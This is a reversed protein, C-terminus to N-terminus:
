QAPAEVAAPVRALIKEGARLGAHVLFEDGLDAGLRVLRRQIHGRTDVAYVFTLQRVYEVAEAPVVVSAPGQTDAAVLIRAEAYLGPITGAPLPASVKALVSRSAPDVGRVSTRITGTVTKGLAPLWLELESGAALQPTLSAPVNVAVELRDPNYLLLIPREPSALDGPDALTDIVVGDIPSELRTFDLRAAAGDRAARAATVAHASAQRAREADIRETQPISRAEAAERISVLLREAGRAEAKARALAADAQDREAQPVRADLLALTDGAAVRAGATVAIQQIRGAIEPALEIRDRAIVAGVLRRERAGTWGTVTVTSQETAAPVPEQMQGARIKPAFVDAQWALVLVVLALALLYRGVGASLLASSSRDEPPSM